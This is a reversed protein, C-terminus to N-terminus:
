NAQPHRDCFKLDPKLPNLWDRCGDEKVGYVNDSGGGRRIYSAAAFRHPLGLGALWRLGALRGAMNAIASLLVSIQKQTCEATHWGESHQGVGFKREERGGLFDFVQFGCNLDLGHDILLDRVPQGLAGWYGVVFLNTRTM